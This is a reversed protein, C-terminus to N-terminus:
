KKPEKVGKALIQFKEGTDPDRQLKDYNVIVGDDLDLEVRKLALHGLKEDYERVEKLQKQIKEIEKTMTNIEKQNDSTSIQQQRLEIRNDYAKQLEHLYETRVKGLQDPTYRHLYMLAKFGNQKGSDLQWYIPRNSYTKLHDKYFDKVFYRRIVERSTGKGGLTDAIFQLNEELTEKGFTVEVFDIFRNVIDIQSDKFYEDDTILLVNDNDPNFKKYRSSEWEGGAYILGEEDLSYRGFIIGVSYSIIKKTIENRNEVKLTYGKSQYFDSRPHINYLDEFFADLQLQLKEICINCDKQLLIWDAVFDEVKNKSTKNQPLGCFDIFQENLKEDNVFIDVIKAVKQEIEILEKEEIPFKVPFSEIDSVQFNMTPNIVESGYRFVKSNLLGLLYNIHENVFIMPGADGFLSGMKVKRFSIDASGIRGWTIGQKFYYKKDRLRYNSSSNKIDYGDNLLNIIKENNGYYKKVDNKAGSNLQFWKFNKMEEFSNISLAIKKNNVEYWYRTFDEVNAMIGSKVEYKNGIIDSVSYNSIYEESAWYAIPMGPIKKFDDQGFIFKIKLNEYNIAKKYAEQKAVQSKFGVLRIYNGKYNEKQAKNLIFTTTQVVEGGIEEFARAGLNAMNIITTDEILNTRLKQFSSLFMWTQQTIMGCYGNQVSLYECQEMFMAFLDSKSDPYHKKAFDSLLKDMGSSGMYPPNTVVIEYKNSLIKAVIILNVLQNLKMKFDEAFLGETQKEGFRQVIEILQEYEFNEQIKILSGYDKGHTFYQILQILNEYQEDDNISTKLENLFDQDQLLEKSEPVDFVNPKIQKRLIQRNYERGKMMLAFYALQKARQDIDLGFLNKELILSAAERTSYGENEYLQMFVEFAYVLIHGSGMSPDIFRIDETAYNAKEQQEQKLQVVVNEPQEATELYYEWNFSQAIEKESRSDGKGLLKEIYFRGLSNEVMYRVIWDPTFLQTAAPIDQKRVKQSKPRAFVQDKPESNYYQYLWGIIEVQGGEQVNFDEEPVNLLDAIVGDKKIYSATFLLETYDEVKEFLEPLYDNLQNCIKIFILQYLKDMAEASNDSKWAQVQQQENSSLEEYIDSDYIDTILDPEIKESTDSSLVRYTDPLYDNVEMFRIAIVRNFWTYAVEEILEQFAEPHSSVTARRNLETVLQNRQAIEKGQIRLGSSEIEQLKSDIQKVKEIGSESIGLRKAKTTVEDILKRRASVAFNKIAKKDM